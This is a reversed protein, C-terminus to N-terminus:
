NTLIVLNEPPCKVAIVPFLAPFFVWPEEVIGKVPVTHVKINQTPPFSSNKLTSFKKLKASHIFLIKERLNYAYVKAKTRYLFAM